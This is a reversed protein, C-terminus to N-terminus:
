PQKYISIRTLICAQLELSFHLQSCIQLTRPLHFETGTTRWQGRRGGMMSKDYDAAVIQKRVPSRVQSSPFQSM